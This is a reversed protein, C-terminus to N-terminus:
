MRALTRVVFARNALEHKLNPHDKVMGRVRIVAGDQRICDACEEARDLARCAQELMALGGSDHLDYESMVARWLAAGPAGLNVPPSAPDPLTQSVVKLSTKAKM